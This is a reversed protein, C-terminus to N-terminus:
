RPLHENTESAHWDEHLCHVCARKCGYGTREPLSYGTMLTRFASSAMTGPHGVVHGPVFTPVDDAGASRVGGVKLQRDSRRLM